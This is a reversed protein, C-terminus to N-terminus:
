QTVVLEYDGKREVSATKDDWIVAFERDGVAIVTGAIKTTPTEAVVRASVLSQAAASAVVGLTCDPNAQANNFGYAHSALKSSAKVLQPQAGAPVSSLDPTNVLNPNQVMLVPDQAPNEDANHIQSEDVYKQIQMGLGQQQEKYSQMNKQFHNSNIDIFDGNMQVGEPIFNPNPDQALATKDFLDAVKINLRPEM